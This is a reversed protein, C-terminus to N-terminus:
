VGKQRHALNQLVRRIIESVEVNTEPSAVMMKRVLPEVETPHYGLAALGAMVEDYREKREPEISTTPQHWQYEKSVYDKLELILRQAKKKGVGPLCMLATVDDNLVARIFDSNSVNGVMSLASKPGVGSVRLLLNFFEKQEENLFGFLVLSDEKVELHTFFSVEEGVPPLCAETGTPLHLHFGIGAVEVLAAGESVQLLTGKLCSIM